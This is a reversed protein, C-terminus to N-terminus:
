VHSSRGVTSFEAATRRKPRPRRRIDAILWRPVAEKNPVRSRRKYAKIGGDLLVFAVILALLVLSIVLPFALDDTRRTAVCLALGTAVSVAAYAVYRSFLRLRGLVTQHSPIDLRSLLLGPVLLLITM